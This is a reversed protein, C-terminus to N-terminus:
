VKLVVSALSHRKKRESLCRSLHKPTSPYPTHLESYLCYLSLTLQKTTDLEKRGKPQIGRPEETWPTRQALISSHTAMGEELSWVTFVDEFIDLYLYTSLLPCLLQQLINVNPFVSHFTNACEIMGAVKRSFNDFTFISSNTRTQTIFIITM